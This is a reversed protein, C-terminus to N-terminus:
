GVAQGPVIVRISAGRDLVTEAMPANAPAASAVLTVKVGARDFTSRITAARQGELAGAPAEAVLETAGCAKAEAAVRDAVAKSFDNLGTEGKEFYLSVEGAPCGTDAAAAGALFVSAGVLAAGAILNTRITM